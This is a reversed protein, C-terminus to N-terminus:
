DFVSWLLQQTLAIGLAAGNHKTEGQGIASTLNPLLILRWFRLGKYTSVAFGLGTTLSRTKLNKFATTFLYSKKNGVRIILTWLQYLSGFPMPNSKCGLVWGHFPKERLGFPACIWVNSGCSRTPQSRFSPTSSASM